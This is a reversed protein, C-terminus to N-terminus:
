VIGTIRRIVTSFRSDSRLSDFVPDVRIKCVWESHEECAKELWVFAQDKDELGIYVIALNIPDVYRHRALEMLTDITDKAKEVEASSAYAYGLGMLTEPNDDLQRATAFASLAEPIKGQFLYAWGLHAHAIWFTPETDVAKRLQQVAQDYLRAFFFGTRGLVSSINMALPDLNQAIRIEAIAEPYRGMCALCKGYWRHALANDANLELARQFSREARVLDWDYDMLIAALATHAQGLSDDLAIARLAASKGKPCVSTPSVHGSGGLLRYGHALTAWALAFSPDKDLAQYCTAISKRLGEETRKELYYCAAEYLRYAQDHGPPFHQSRNAKEAPPPDTRATPEGASPSREGSSHSHQQLAAAFAEMSAFREAPTKALAKLCISELGPSLDPRFQSPLPPPATVIQALLEGITGLFPLRGALLEYLIVGLSYIDCPPGIAHPDGNVQEPSMYAPTGLVMGPHTLRVDGMEPARRALGFDLIVPQGRLDIMINSPKLDRHIIGRRHAEHMALALQGVFRVSDQIPHPRNGRLLESLLQGEIYAMSLYSVGEIQGVDHVSCLNPHFLMAAARAERLFREKDELCSNAGFRPIKLAVDRDLQRDHALYVAGMGGMGLLKNLTYRGLCTPLTTPLGERWNAAAQGEDQPLSGRQWLAEDPAPPRTAFEEGKGPPTTALTDCPGEVRPNQVPQDKMSGEGVLYLALPVAGSKGQISAFLQVRRRCLGGSRDPANSVELHM